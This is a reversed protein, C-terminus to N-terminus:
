FGNRELRMLRILSETSNLIAPDVLNNFWRQDKIHTKRFPSMLVQDRSCWGFIFAELSEPQWQCFVYRDAVLLDITGDNKVRRVLLEKPQYQQTTKVQYFKGCWTGDVGGDGNNLSEDVFRCNIGRGNLHKQLALEGVTGILAPNACVGKKWRSAYSSYARHQNRAEAISKAYLLDGRSLSVRYPKPALTGKGEVTGM